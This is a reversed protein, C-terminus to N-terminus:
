LQCETLIEFKALVGREWKRGRRGGRRGTEKQEAKGRQLKREGKRGGEKGEKRLEEGKMGGEERNRGKGTKWEDRKRQM